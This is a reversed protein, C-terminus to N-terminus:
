GFYLSTYLYLPVDKNLGLVGEIAVWELESRLDSNRLSIAIYGEERCIFLTRTDVSKARKKLVQCLPEGTSKVLCLFCSFRSQTGQWRHRNWLRECDAIYESMHRERERTHIHTYLYVCVYVSVKPNQSTFCFFCFFVCLTNSVFLSM